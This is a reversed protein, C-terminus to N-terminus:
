KRVIFLDHAHKLALPLAKYEMYAVIGGIIIATGIIGWSGLNMGFYLDTIDTFTSIISTYWNAAGKFSEANICIYYGGLANAFARFFFIAKSLSDLETLNNDLAGSFKAINTAWLMFEVFVGLIIAVIWFSGANFYIIMNEISFVSLAMLGLLWLISIFSQLYFSRDFKPMLDAVRKELTEILSLSQTQKNKLETIIKDKEIIIAINDKVKQQLLLENKRAANLDENAKLYASNISDLQRAYLESTEKTYRIKLVDKQKDLEEIHKKKLSEIQKTHESIMNQVFENHKNKSAEQTNKRETCFGEELEQQKALLSEQLIQEHKSIPILMQEFDLTKQMSILTDTEGGFIDSNLLWQPAKDEIIFLGENSIKIFSIYKDRTQSVTGVNLLKDNWMIGRFKGGNLLHEIIFKDRGNLGLKEIIFQKIQENVQKMDQNTTLNFM